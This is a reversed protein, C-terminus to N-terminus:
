VNNQGETRCFTSFFFDVYNIQFHSMENQAEGKEKEEKEVGGKIVM